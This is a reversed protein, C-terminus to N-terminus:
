GRSFLVFVFFLLYFSLIYFFYMDILINGSTKKKKQFNIFNVFYLYKLVLNVKLTVKLITLILRHLLSMRVNPCSVSVRVSIIDFIYSVSVSSIHYYKFNM